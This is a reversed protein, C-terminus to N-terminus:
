ALEDLLAKADRLEPKDFKETFSCSAFRGQRRSTNGGPGQAPKRRFPVAASPALGRGSRASRPHPGPASTGCPRATTAALIKRVEVGSAGTHQGDQSDLPFGPPDSSASNHRPQHPRGCGAARPRLLRCRRLDTEEAADRGAGIRGEDGCEALSQAFAAVDVPLVHRDLVAPRFTVVVPQRFQGGIQDAPPDSEDQCRTARRRCERGLRRRGFDRNNEFGAAIRDRCPEDGAEIV